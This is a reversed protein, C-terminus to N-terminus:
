GQELDVFIDDSLKGRMNDVKGELWGVRVISPHDIVPIYPKIDLLPTGDLIDVNEIEVINSQIRILRVVSFGISNPRRPARTAFVGHSSDDLFPKVVLSSDSSRHFHYILILHSFGELDQLGPVLQRNLIIKGKVGDAGSPQIPMGILSEYPSHIFGIAHYQINNNDM